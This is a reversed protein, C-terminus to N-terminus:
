VWVSGASNEGIKTGIGHDATQGTIGTVPIGKKRAAGITAAPLLFAM